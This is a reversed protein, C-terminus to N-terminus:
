KRSRIAASRARMMAAMVLSPASYHLKTIKCFLEQNSCAKNKAQSERCRKGNNRGRRRILAAWDRQGPRDDMHTITSHNTVAHNSKIVANNGCHATGAVIYIEGIMFDKIHLSAM